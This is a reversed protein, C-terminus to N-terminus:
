ETLSTPITALNQSLFGQNQPFSLRSREQVRSFELFSADRRRLPAIVAMRKFDRYQSHNRKAITTEANRILKTQSSTYSEADNHGRLQHSKRLSEVKPVSFQSVKRSKTSTSESSNQPVTIISCHWRIFSSHPVTFDQSIDTSVSFHHFIYYESSTTSFFSLSFSFQM